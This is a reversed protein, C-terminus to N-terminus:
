PDRRFLTELAEPTVPKVLHDNFGAARSRERDDKQGYGTLAVLHIPGHANRGRLRRAVEYGDM